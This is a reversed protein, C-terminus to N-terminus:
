SDAAAPPPSGMVEGNVVTFVADPHVAWARWADAVQALDSATAIGYRQAQHAISSAVMREAWLDGWWAREDATAFTWTSTTYTVDELGAAHAWALLYRGADPEGGNRRIVDRVVEQWRSLREDPPAWTMAGYDTDRVAVMGDPRALSAMARLAGVPDGLHHLVQHAHVVDFSGLGLELRRFDGVLLEVNDARRQSVHQRAEDIVEPSVDVGVVRGPAVRQALDVTLTAPGCGVDLLTMGEELLPLLYAASNAATRWRHSRLVADHHRHTYIDHGAPGGSGM